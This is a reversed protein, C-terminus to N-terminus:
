PHPVRRCLLSTQQNSSQPAASHTFRSFTRTAPSLSTQAAMSPSPWSNITNPTAAPRSPPIFQSSRAASRTNDASLKGVELSTARDFLPRQFVEFMEALTAESALLLDEDHAKAIAQRPTSGRFLMGRVLLNTDLVLRKQASM